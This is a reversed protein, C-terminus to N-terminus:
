QAAESTRGFQSRPIENGWVWWSPAPKRGYLELYPGGFLREIRRRRETLEPSLRVIPKSGM